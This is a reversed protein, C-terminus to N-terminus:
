CYYKELGKSIYYFLWNLFFSFFILLIKIIENNVIAVLAFYALFFISFILSPMSFTLAFLKKLNKEGNLIKFTPYNTLVLILILFLLLGVIQIIDIALETPNPKLAEAILAEPSIMDWLAYAV